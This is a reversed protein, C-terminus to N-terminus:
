LFYFFMFSFMFLPLPEDINQVPFSNYLYWWVFPSYIYLMHLQCPIYIWVFACNYEDWMSAFCHEFNELGPKLLVHILFKWINLSSKSFASSVSILHVVDAPDYFFCSLELFVDVEAKNVVDFFFFHLFAFHSDSSAKCIVRFLLSPFLLPSFSIYAWKFASNWFIALLSLFAKRLSWHLSISSFLLIPFM